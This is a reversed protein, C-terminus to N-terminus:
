IFFVKKGKGWFVGRQMILGWKIGARPLASTPLSSQSFAQGHCVFNCKCNFCILFEKVKNRGANWSECFNGAPCSWELLESDAWDWM